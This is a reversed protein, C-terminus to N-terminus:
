SGIKLKKSFASSFLFGSIIISIIVIWIPLWGIFAMFLGTLMASFFIVDNKLKLSALAVIVVLVILIAMFALGLGGSAIGEAGQAMMSFIDDYGGETIQNLPRDIVICEDQALKKIKVFNNVQWMEVRWSGPSLTVKDNPVPFIGNVLLGAEIYWDTGTALDDLYFVMEVKKDHKLKLEFQSDVYFVNRYFEVFNNEEAIVNFSSYLTNNVTTLSVNWNGIAAYNPLTINLTGRGTGVASGYSTTQGRADLVTIKGTDDLSRYNIFVVDYGAIAREPEITLFEIGFGFDGYSGNIDTIDFNYTDVVTYELGGSVYLKLEYSGFDFFQKNVSEIGTFKQFNTITIETEGPALVNKVTLYGNNNVNFSINVFQGLKPETPSVSTINGMPTFDGTTIYFEPGETLRVDLGFLGGGGHGIFMKYHDVGGTVTKYGFTDSPDYDWHLYHKSNDLSVAWNGIYNYNDSSVGGDTDWWLWGLNEFDYIWIFYAGGPLGGGTLWLPDPAVYKINISEGQTYVDKDTCLIRYGPDGFSLDHYVGPGHHCNGFSDYDIVNSIYIIYTQGEYLQLYNTSDVYHKNLFDQDYYGSMSSLNIYHYEGNTFELGSLSITYGYEETPNYVGTFIDSRIEVRTNPIKDSELMWNKPTGVGGTYLQFGTEQDWLELYISGAEPGEFEEDDDIEGYWVECILDETDTITMDYAYNIEGYGHKNETDFDGDIDYNTTPLAVTSSGVSDVFQFELLGNSLSTNVWNWVIIFDGDYYFLDDYNGFNQNEFFLNIGFNAWQTSEDLRLAVQKIETSPFSSHETEIISNFSSHSLTISNSPVREVIGYSLYGPLDWGQPTDGVLVKFDDIYCGVSGDDYSTLYIDQVYDINAVAYEGNAHNGTTTGNIQFFYKGETVNYYIDIFINESSAIAIDVITTSGSKVIFNNDSAKARLFFMAQGNGNYFTQSFDSNASAVIVSTYNIHTTQLSLNMWSYDYQAGGLSFMAWSKGTWVQHESGVMSKVELWKNGSISENLWNTGISYQEFDCLYYDGDISASANPIFILFNLMLILFIFLSTYKKM